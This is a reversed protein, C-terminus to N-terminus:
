GKRKRRRGRLAGLIEGHFNERRLSLSGKGEGSFHHCILALSGPLKM